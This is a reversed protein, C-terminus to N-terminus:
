CTPKIKKQKDKMGKVNILATHNTINREMNKIKM